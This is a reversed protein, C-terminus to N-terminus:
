LEHMSSIDNRFDKESLIKNRCIFDFLDKVNKLYETDKGRHKFLLWNMTPHKELRFNLIKFSRPKAIFGLQLMIETTIKTNEM